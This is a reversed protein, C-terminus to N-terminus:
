ISTLLRFAKRLREVARQRARDAATESIQLREAMERSAVGDLSWRVLERPDPVLGVVDTQQARGLAKARGV